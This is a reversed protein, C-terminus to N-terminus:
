VTKIRAAEVRRVQEGFDISGAAPRSLTRVTGEPKGRNTRPKVSKGSLSSAVYFPRGVLFAVLQRRNRLKIEEVLREAGAVDEGLDVLVLNYSGSDYRSRASQANAACHVIVGMRRMMKSRSDRTQANIDVLLVTKKPWSFNPIQAVTDTAPMTM